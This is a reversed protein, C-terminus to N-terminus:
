RRVGHRQTQTHPAWANRFQTADRTTYRRALVWLLLIERIAASGRSGRSISKQVYM